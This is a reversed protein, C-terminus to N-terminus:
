LAKDTQPSVRLTRQEVLAQWRTPLSAAVLAVQRFCPVVAEAASLHVMAPAVVVEGQQAESGPGQEQGSRCEVASTASAPLASSRRSARIARASWSM